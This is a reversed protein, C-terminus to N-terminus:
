RRSEWLDRRHAQVPLPPQLLRGAFRFLLRALEVLLLTAVLPGQNDDVLLGEDVAALYSDLQRDVHSVLRAPGWLGAASAVWPDDGM